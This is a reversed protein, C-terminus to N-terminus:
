PFCPTCNGSCRGHNSSFIRNRANGALVPIMPCFILFTKRSTKKEPFIIEHSKQKKQFNEFLYFGLRVQLSTTEEEAQKRSRLTVVIHETKPFATSPGDKL